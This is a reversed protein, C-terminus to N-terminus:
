HLFLITVALFLPALVVVSLAMYAFFSPMRVGARRAIAYIMFNPANGVYTLAGMYVAGLSIAKLIGSLPGMLRAADGGAIQFFVLYTPANDLVSSLLGAGWFYLPEVRGAGTPALHALISGMPGAGREALIVSVPELCVFIAAFMVAVEVLPEWEFGNAAREVPDTLAMSALAAAVMAADRLLDQLEFRVGLAMFAVGPRWAASAAVAAVVVGVLVLNVLGSARLDRLGTSAPRWGEKRALWRDTGYFLALLITLAFGTVPWLNRLPWFFGVGHLYGMFLPPDGLPSLSGGINAVVFIFFVVVHAQYRRGANARLIPRILVLSAGTTGLISACLAGLALLGANLAPTAALEGRVVIGGATAFLALLMLIFPLYRTALVGFLLRAASEPGIAAALPAAAASAWILAIWGSHRVWLRPAAVPLLAISALLGVFPAGWLLSPAFASTASSTV